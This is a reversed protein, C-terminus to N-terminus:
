NYYVHVNKVHVITTDVVKCQIEWVASDDSINNLAGLDSIKDITNTMETEAITNNHTVDYIRMYYSSGGTEMFSISKINTVLQWYKSGPYIITGITTYISRDIDYVNFSINQINSGLVPIPTHVSVIADLTTKDTVSLSSTFNIIVNDGNMTIGEIPSSINSNLIDKHLQSLNINGSFDTSHSYTYPEM